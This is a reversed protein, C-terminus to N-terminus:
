SAKTYIKQKLLRRYNDRGGCCGRDPLLSLLFGVNRVLRALIQDIIDIVERAYVVSEVSEEDSKRTYTCVPVRAACPFCAM